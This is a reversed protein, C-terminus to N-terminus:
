RVVHHHLLSVYVQRQFRRVVIMRRVIHVLSLHEDLLNVLRESRRRLPVLSQEDDGIVLVASEEVVNRRRDSPYRTGVSDDTRLRKQELKIPESDSNRSDHNRWPYLFASTHEIYRKIDAQVYKNTVKTM